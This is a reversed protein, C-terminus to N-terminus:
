KSVWKEWGRKTRGAKATAITTQPTTTTTTTPSPPNPATKKGGRTTTTIQSPSPLVCM